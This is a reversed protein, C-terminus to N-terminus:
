ASSCGRSFAAVLTAPDSTGSAQPERVSLGTRASEGCNQARLHVTKQENYPEQDVLRMRRASHFFNQESQDEKAAQSGDRGLGLHDYDYVMMVMVMVAMVMMGIALLSDAPSQWPRV